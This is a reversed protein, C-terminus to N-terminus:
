FACCPRNDSIVPTDSVRPLQYLVVRMDPHACAWMNIINEYRKWDGGAMGCGIKYPIAVSQPSLGAVKELCSSFWKCRDEISDPHKRRKEEDDDSSADDDVDVSYPRGTGYQSFLSVFTPGDYDDHPAHFVQITGPVAQDEDVAIHRNEKAKRGKYPDAYPYANTITKALGSTRVALCNNQQLILEEKAQLLDGKVIEYLSTPINM